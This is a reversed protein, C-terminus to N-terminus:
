VSSVRVEAPTVVAAHTSAIETAPEGGESVEIAGAIPPCPACPRVTVKPPDLKVPPVSDKVPVSMVGAGAVTDPVPGDHDAMILIAEAAAKVARSAVTVTLPAPDDVKGTLKVTLAAGVMEQVGAVGPVPM